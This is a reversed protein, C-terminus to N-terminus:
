PCPRLVALFDAPTASTAAADLWCGLLALDLQDAVAREVEMTVAAPFRARLFLLLAERADRLRVQEILENIFPSETV